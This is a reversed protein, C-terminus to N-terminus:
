VFTDYNLNLRRSFHNCAKQSYIKMAIATLIWFYMGIKIAVFIDIFVANILLGVTALILGMLYGKELAFAARKFSVLEKKLIAVILVLFSIIGILGTDSLLRMYWNDLTGPLGYIRSFRLYSGHGRGFLINGKHWNELAAQANTLRGSLSADQILEKTSRMAFMKLVKQPLPAFRFTIILILLLGVLLFFMKAKNKVFFIAVFISFLFSIISIRSQAFFIAILCALFLIRLLVNKTYSSISFLILGMMMLYAGLDYSITFTSFGRFGAINFNGLSASSDGLPIHKSLPFLIIVIGLSIWFYKLYINLKNLDLLAYTIYYLVIFEIIRGFYFIGVYLSVTNSIIGLATSIFGAGLYILIPIDIPTKKLKVGHQALLGLLFIYVVSVFVIDDVRLPTTAGPIAFLPIKIFLPVFLILFILLKTKM